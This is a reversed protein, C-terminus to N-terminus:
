FLCMHDCLKTVALCDNVAYEIMKDIKLNHDVHLPRSWQNLTQSKDLFEDFITAIARQLGWKNNKMPDFSFQRRYWRKFEAQIDTFYANELMQATFFDFCLFSRLDERGDGWSFISKDPDFIREFLKRILHCSISSRDIPLHCMEILIVTTLVHHIMEVQILAPRQSRFDGQTGITFRETQQALDIFYYWREMSSHRNLLYTSTRTLPTFKSKVSLRENQMRKKALRSM